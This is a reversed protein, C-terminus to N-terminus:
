RSSWFYWDSEQTSNKHADSEITWKAMRLIKSLQRVPTLSPTVDEDNELQNRKKLIDATALQGSWASLQVVASHACASKLFPPFGSYPIWPLYIIFQSRSGGKECKSLILYTVGELSVFTSTRIPAQLYSWRIRQVTQSQEFSPPTQIESVTPWARLRTRQLGGKDMRGFIIPIMELTSLM